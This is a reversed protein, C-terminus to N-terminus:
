EPDPPPKCGMSAVMLGLRAYSERARQDEESAPSENEAIELAIAKMESLMAACQQSACGNLVLVAAATLAFFAAFAYTLRRM